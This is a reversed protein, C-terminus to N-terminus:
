GEMELALRAANYGPAGTVGGGPHAGAGCLYLNRIPGAGRLVQPDPRLPGFQDFALEGHHWHGGSCGYEAELDAPTFVQAGLVRDPLDPAFAALRGIVLNKLWDRHADWGGAPAFPVFQMVASLVHCGEPALTGDHVSPIVAEIVPFETFEGYKAPVAANELHDLDPAILFRGNLYAKDIGKFGPMGDLALNIKAARGESRWQRLAGTFESDFQEAGVLDLFTRRPDLSSLIVPARVEEGDELVIGTVADREVLIRAVRAGMRLAAGKERASAWLAECVAGMGGRPHGVAGKVGSCEGMLRYLWPLMTGPERPGLAGGMVADAALTGRVIDSEFASEVVDAASAFAMRQLAGGDEGLRRVAGAVPRTEAAAVPPPQLLFSQLSWALRIMRKQFSAYADADLKSHRGISARDHWVDNALVLHDGEEHLGITPIRRESYQLGNRYLNLDRVIRPHLGYLLHACTSAQFGKAIEGTGSMGGIQDRAEVVLVSRGARALYAAATLGNHGAGIVIADFRSSSM